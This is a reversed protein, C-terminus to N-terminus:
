GTDEAAEAVGQFPMLICVHRNLHPKMPEFLAFLEPAEGVDKLFKEVEAAVSAIEEVRRGPMHEGVISASAQCVLCARIEYGIEVVKGDELRVDLKLRDGCFPNRIEASGDPNELRGAGSARAALKLLETQELESL